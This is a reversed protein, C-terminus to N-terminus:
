KKAKLENNIAQIRQFVDETKFDSLLINHDKWFEDGGSSGHDNINENRGIKKSFPEAQKTDVSTVQYNFKVNIALSRQQDAPVINLVDDGAVESLVWRNNVKQYGIRCRDSKIDLKVADTSKLIDGAFIGAAGNRLATPSLGLDFYIFAYSKTDIYFKGKYTENSEQDTEKFSVEYAPYGKVDVIGTIEFHHRAMGKENLFGSSAIHNIVDYNFITNPKLGLDFSKFDRQNKRDRAKILRLMDARKDSYGFNFVDFVAESLELPESASATYIRYFGRTIHPQDIYNDPIRAIAKNIIKIADYYAINVEKLDVNNRKLSINTSSGSTIGSVPLYLTQYGICSVKLTDKLNAAPILLLLEGNKNASTGLGKKDINISAGPIPTHGDDETIIGALRITQQALACNVTSLVLLLCVIYAPKIRM